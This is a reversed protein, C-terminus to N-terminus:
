KRRKRAVSSSEVSSASLKAFREAKQKRKKEAENEVEKNAVREHAVEILKITKKIKSMAKPGQVHYYIAKEILNSALEKSAYSDM